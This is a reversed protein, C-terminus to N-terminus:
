NVQLRTEGIQIVDGRHLEVRRRIRHRNVWTGNTSGKDEIWYFGDQYTIEAHVKSASADELRIDGDERGIVLTSRALPVDISGDATNLRSITGQPDIVPGEHAPPAVVPAAPPVEAVVPEPEPAPAPGRVGFREELPRYHPDEQNVTHREHEADRSYGEADLAEALGFRLDLRLTHDLDQRQLAKRYIERATTPDGLHHCAKGLLLMCAVQLNSDPLSRALSGFIDRYAGTRLRLLNVFFLAVPEGPVIELFQELTTVAGEPDRGQQAMALLLNLGLFDPYICFCSHRTLALAVHLSPSYQRLHKGLAQQALLATKLLREAEETEGQGILIAGLLFYADTLQAKADGKKTAERLRAVAEKRQGSILSSLGALFDKEGGSMTLNKLLNVNLKGKEQSEFFRLRPLWDAAEWGAFYLGTENHEEPVDKRIAKVAEDVGRGMLKGALGMGGTITKLVDRDM